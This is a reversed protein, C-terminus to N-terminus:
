RAHVASSVPAARPMTRGAPSASGCRFRGTLNRRKSPRQQSRHASDDSDSPDDGDDADEGDDMAPESFVHQPSHHQHLSGGFDDNATLDDM